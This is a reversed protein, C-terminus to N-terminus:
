NRCLLCKATKREKMCSIIYDSVCILHGIYKHCGVCEIVTVKDKEISDYCIPCVIKDDENKLGKPDTHYDYDNIVNFGASLILQERNKLAQIAGKINDTSKKYDGKIIPNDEDIVDIISELEGISQIEHTIILSPIVIHYMVASLRNGTTKEILYKKNANYLECVRKYNKIYYYLTFLDLLGNVASHERMEIAEICKQTYYINKPYQTRMFGYYNHNINALPKTGLKDQIPEVNLKYFEELSKAYYSKNKARLTAFIISEIYMYKLGLTIEDDDENFQYVDRAIHVLEDFPIDVGKTIKCSVNIFELQSRNVESDALMKTYEDVKQYDFKAKADSLSRLIIRKNNLNISDDVVYNLGKTSIHNYIIQYKSSSTIRAHEIRFEEIIVKVQEKPKLRIMKITDFTLKKSMEFTTIPEDTIENATTMNVLLIQYLINSHTRILNLYTYIDEFRYYKIKYFTYYYLMILNIEDTYDLSGFDISKLFRFMIDTDLDDNTFYEIFTTAIDEKNEM